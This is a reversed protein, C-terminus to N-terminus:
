AACHRIDDFINQFSTWMLEAFQNENLAFIFFFGSASVCRCVSARMSPFKSILLDKYEM